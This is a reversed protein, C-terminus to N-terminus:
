SPLEFVRGCRQQCSQMADCPAHGAVGSVCFIQQL